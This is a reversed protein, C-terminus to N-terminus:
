GSPRPTGLELTDSALIADALGLSPNMRGKSHAARPWKGLHQITLFLM